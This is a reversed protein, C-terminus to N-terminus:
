KLFVCIMADCRKGFLSTLTQNAIVSFTSKRLLDDVKGIEIAFAETIWGYRHPKNRGAAAIMAIGVKLFQPKDGAFIVLTMAIM